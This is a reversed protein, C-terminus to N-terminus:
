CQQPVGGVLGGICCAGALGARGVTAEQHIENKNENGEAEVASFQLVSVDPVILELTPSQLQDSAPAQDQETAFSQLSFCSGIVGLIILNKINTM